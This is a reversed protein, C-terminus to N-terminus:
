QELANEIAKQLSKSTATAGTLSDIDVKQQDIVEGTVQNLVAIQSDNGTDLIEIDIIRHDEVLVTVTNSWRGNEYMGTYTGDEIQTMDISQITLSKAEKLGITGFGALLVFLVIIGAFCYLIIKFVKM